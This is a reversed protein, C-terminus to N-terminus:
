RVLSLLEQILQDTTTIVRSNASFGTSSTILSVFEGALDVNSLELAGSIINASSSATTQTINAEGAGLGHTLRLRALLTWFGTALLLAIISINFSWGIKLGSYINCPTLLAGILVGSIVARLTLHRANPLSPSGAARISM